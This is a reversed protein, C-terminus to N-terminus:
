LSPIECIKPQLFLCHALPQNKLTGTSKEFHFNSFNTSKLTTKNASKTYM